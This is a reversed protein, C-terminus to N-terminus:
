YFCTKPNCNKDITIYVFFDHTILFSYDFTIIWSHGNCLTPGCNSKNLWRPTPNCSTFQTHAEGLSLKNAYFSFSLASGLGLSVQNSGVQVQDLNYVRQRGGSLLEPQRDPKSPDPRYGHKKNTKKKFPM